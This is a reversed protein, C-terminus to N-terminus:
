SDRRRYIAVGFGLASCLLWVIGITAPTISAPASPAPNKQPKELSKPPSSPKSVKTTKTTKTTKITTPQTASAKKASKSTIQASLQTSSKQSKSLTKTSTKKPPVKEESTALSLNGDEDIMEFFEEFIDSDESEKPTNNWKQSNATGTNKNPLAWKIKQSPAFQPIHARIVLSMQDANLSLGVVSLLVVGGNAGLRIARPNCWKIQTSAGINPKVLWECADGVQTNSAVLNIICASTRCSGDALTGSQIQINPPIRASDIPSKQASIVRVPAVEVPAMPTTPVPITPLTNQVVPTPNLTVFVTPNTPTSVIPIYAENRIYAPAYRQFSETLTLAQVPLGSMDTLGFDALTKLRLHSETTANIRLDTHALDQEYLDIFLEAGSYTLTRVVGSGSEIRASSLGGTNSYIILKDSRLAGNLTGSYEVSLRDVRGNRDLDLIRLLLPLLPGNSVPQSVISGTQVIVGSFSGIAGTGAVGWSWSVTLLNLTAGSNNITLLGTQTSSMGGSSTLATTAETQTTGSQSLSGSSNNPTTSGTLSLTGSSSNITISGTLTELSPALIWSGTTTTTTVIQTIIETTCSGYPSVAFNIGVWKSSTAYSKIDISEWIPSRLELTEDTNNLTIRTEARMFRRTAGSILTETPLTFISGAADRLTYGWISITACSANQVEIYELNIDDLTNPLVGYLALGGAFVTTSASLWALSTFLLTKNMVLKYEDNM